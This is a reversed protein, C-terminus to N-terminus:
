IVFLPWVLLKVCTFAPKQAILHESVEPESDYKLVTTALVVQAQISDHFSHQTLHLGSILADDRLKTPVRSAAAIVRLKGSCSTSLYKDWPWGVTPASPDVM